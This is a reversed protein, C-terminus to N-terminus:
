RGLCRVFGTCTSSPVNQALVTAFTVNATTSTAGNKVTASCGLNDAVAPDGTVKIATHVGYVLMTGYSQYAIDGGTIVGAVTKTDTTTGTDVAVGYKDTDDYDWAVVDGNELTVGSGANNYVTVTVFPSSDVPMSPNTNLGGAISMVPLFLLLFLCLFLGVKKLM